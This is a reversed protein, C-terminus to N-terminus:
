CVRNFRSIGYFNEKDKPDYDRYRSQNGTVFYRDAPIRCVLWRHGRANELYWTEKDDIFGIAFGEASGYEEILKSLREAKVLQKSILCCLIIPATKQSDMKLMLISSLARESSFITETDGNRVGATNYGASGWEGPFQFDPLATYGLAKTPM